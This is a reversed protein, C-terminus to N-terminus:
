SRHAFLEIEAIAVDTGEVAHYFSILHIEVSTANDGGPIDLTQPDPSDTLIVDATHGTSFM